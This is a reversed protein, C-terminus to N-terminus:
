SSSGCLSATVRRIPEVCRHWRALADARGRGGVRVMRVSDFYGRPDNWIEVLTDDAEWDWPRAGQIQERPSFGGGQRGRSDLRRSVYWDFLPVVETTHLRYHVFISSHEEEFAKGIAEEMTIVTYEDFLAQNVGMGELLSFSVEIAAPWDMWEEPAEPFLDRVRM